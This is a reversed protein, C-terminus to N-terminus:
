ESKLSFVINNRSQYSVQFHTKDNVVANVFRYTFMGIINTGPVTYNQAILPRWVLIHTIGYKKLINYIYTSNNSNMIRPFEDMAWVCYRDAFYSVSGCYTTFIVANKSTNLRIWELVNLYDQPYRQTNSTTVSLVFSNHAVYIFLILFIFLFYKMRYFKSLYLGSLVALQPFIISLYRPDAIGHALVYFNIVFALTFLSVFFTPLVFEERHSLVFYIFSSLTLLPILIGFSDILDFSPTIKKAIELKWAAPRPSSPVFHKYIMDLGYVQVTNYLKIGRAIWPVLILLSISIAIISLKFYKKDRHYFKWLSYIFVIGTLFIGDAKTIYSLGLISGLLVSKKKTDLTIMIYFTLVSFFALPIDVYALSMYHIFLPISMLMMMCIPGAITNYHKGILYTMFLSAIGFLTVVLKLSVLSEIFLLFVSAILPLLPPPHFPTGGPDFSYFELTLFHKALKYYNAEDEGLMATHLATYIFFCSFLLLTIIFVHDLSIELDLSIVWCKELIILSSM